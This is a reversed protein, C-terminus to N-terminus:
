LLDPQHSKFFRIPTPCPTTQRLAFRRTQQPYTIPRKTTIQHTVFRFSQVSQNVTTQFLHRVTPRRHIFNEPHCFAITLTVVSPVHLMKIRPVLPISSAAAVGPDLAAQLFGPQNRLALGPSHVAFTTLAGGPRPQHDVLVAAGVFPDRTLVPVQDDRHVVRGVFVVRHEKNGFLAGEATQAPYLFHNLFSTKEGTKVRIPPTVVPVGRFGPALDVLLM